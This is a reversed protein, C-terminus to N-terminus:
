QADGSDGATNRRSAALSALKQALREKANITIDGTIEITERGKLDNRDLVDRAAILRLTNSRGALTDAMVELAPAVLSQLRRLAAARTQPANGGHFRCVNGGPIAPRTCRKGTSKTHATCQTTTVFQQRKTAM